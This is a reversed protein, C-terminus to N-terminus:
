SSVQAPNQIHLKRQPLRILGTKRLMALFALVIVIVTLSQTVSSVTIGVSSLGLYLGSIGAISLSLAVSLVTKEIIDLKGEQFLLSVLCYGPIFAVYTFGFFVTLWWLSSENPIYYVCFLTIVTYIVIIGFWKIPHL